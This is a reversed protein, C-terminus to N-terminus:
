ASAPEEALARFTIELVGNRFTSQMSGADVPPLDATTHYPTTVGDADISLVSGQVDLRISEKAAGPLETIVKVEDDIRHVEAVPTTATRSPIEPNDQEPTHLDGSDIIIRFGSVQPRGNMLDQNMRSFLHNFIDDMEEFMDRPYGNM